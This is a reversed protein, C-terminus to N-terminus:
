GARLQFGQSRRTRYRHYPQVHFRSPPEPIGRGLLEQAPGGRLEQPWRMRIPCATSDSNSDIADFSGERRQGVRSFPKASILTRTTAHESWSPTSRITESRECDLQASSVSLERRNRSNSSAAGSAM